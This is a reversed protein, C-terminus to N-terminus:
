LQEVLKALQRMKSAIDYRREPGLKWLLNAGFKCILIDNKAILRLPDRNMKDLVQEKLVSFETTSERAPKLVSELICQSQAKILKAREYTEGDMETEKDCKTVMPCTKEHRWLEGHFIFDLCHRCPM